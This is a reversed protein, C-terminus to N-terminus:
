LPKHDEKHRMEVFIYWSALTMPKGLTCAGKPQKAGESAHMTYHSCSAWRRAPLLRWADSRSSAPM